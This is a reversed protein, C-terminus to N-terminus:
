QSNGVLYHTTHNQGQNTVQSLILQTVLNLNTIEQNIKSNVTDARTKIVIDM